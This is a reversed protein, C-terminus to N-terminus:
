GGDRLPTPPFWHKEAAVRGLATNGCRIVLAQYFQKAAEPDRLKLWGGATALMEATDDSDNPLLSAAWWGLEAARYRYHFRKEPAHQTELRKSELRSPLFVSAPVEPKEVKGRRQEAAPTMTVAGDWIAWDPDLETGLLEM